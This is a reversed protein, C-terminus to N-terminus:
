RTGRMGPILLKQGPTVEGGRLVRDHNAQYIEIWRDESGFLRSSITRLTDGRKVVYVRSRRRLSNKGPDRETLRDELAQVRKKAKRAEERVARVEQRVNELASSSADGSTSTPEEPLVVPAATIGRVVPLRAAKAIWGLGPPAEIQIRYTGRLTEVPLPSKEGLVTRFRGKQISVYRASEWVHEGGSVGPFIRFRILYTGSKPRGNEDSLTGAYDIRPEQSNLSSVTTKGSRKTKEIGTGHVVMPGSLERSIWGAGPPPTATIKFNGKLVRDPIAKKTGLTTRYLGKRARVFLSQSWSRKGSGIKFKLLYTGTQPFGKADHLTGQYLVYAGAHAATSAFILLFGMLIRTTITYHNM